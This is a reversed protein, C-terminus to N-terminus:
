APVAAMAPRRLWRLMPKEFLEHVRWGLLVSAGAAAIAVADPPLATFRCLAWVVTLVVPLHVLYLAYSADGLYTLLGERAKIQMAGWVVMAAPLGLYLVRSWAMTGDLFDPVNLSALYGARGLFWAAAVGIPILAIAGRWPPLRALAVGMLFEFILPNGVFQLVPGARLTLAAVFAAALLWILRPRWIVLATGAYFLAEFCLTWAVPLVPIVMRDLAPWLTLSTVVERWGFGGGAVAGGALYLLTFLAYLPLIRRARRAAFEGVTLGKSTLAIIVGSLVFFVDVGARGFVAGDAGLVGFRHTTQFIATDAHYVVVALAACFRLVQLSWIKMGRRYCRFGLWM